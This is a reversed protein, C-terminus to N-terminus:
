LCVWPADGFVAENVPVKLKGLEDRLPWLGKTTGQRVSREGKLEPHIKGNYPNWQIQGKGM